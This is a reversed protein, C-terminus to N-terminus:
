EIDRRQQKKGDEEKRIVASPAAEYVFNCGAPSGSSSQTKGSTCYPQSGSVGGINM